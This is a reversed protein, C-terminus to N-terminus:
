VTGRRMLPLLTLWIAALMMQRNQIYGSMGGPYRQVRTQYFHKKYPGDPRSEQRALLKDKLELLLIFVFILIGIIVKNDSNGQNSSSFIFIIAIIFLARRFSSLRLILAKILWLSILFWKRFWNMSKLRQKRDKDIYFDHLERLDNGMIKFFTGSFIDRFINGLDNFITKFFKQEPQKKDM